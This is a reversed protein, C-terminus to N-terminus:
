FFFFMFVQVKLPIRRVILGMWHGFAGFNSLTKREQIREDLIQFALSPGM